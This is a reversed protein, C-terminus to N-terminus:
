AAAQRKKAEGQMWEHMAQMYRSLLAGGSRQDHTMLLRAVVDFSRFCDHLIIAMKLLQQDSLRDLRTLDRIFIADSWLAQSLGAQEDKPNCLPTFIRSVLDHPLISCFRHFQFGRSRMYIEIDSFLPQNEYLQLFEVESEVVLATELCDEAHQLAMLEAGQIDLKLFEVGHAEPVDDLRRTKITETSMVHGWRPFGNLMSLLAHNPKFISTMGPAFTIYLTHSKGDGIAYPLYTERQGKLNNLRALSEQNVDFGVVEADGSKLWESYHPKGDIPNAGIDVVKISERHGVWEKFAPVNYYSGIHISTNTQM